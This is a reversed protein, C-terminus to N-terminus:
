IKTIEGGFYIYVKGLFAGSPFFICGHLKQNCIKSKRKLLWFLFGKGELKGQPM